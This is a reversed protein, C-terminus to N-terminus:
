QTSEFRWEVRDGNHTQYSQASDSILESNVYFSWLQNIGDAELDNISSIFSGFSSPTTQVTAQQKLLELATKGTKGTVIVIKDSSSAKATRATKSAVIQASASAYSSPQQSLALLTIGSLGVVGLATTIVVRVTGM